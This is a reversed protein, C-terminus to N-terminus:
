EDNKNLEEKVQSMVNDDSLLFDIIKRKSDRMYKQFSAQKIKKKGPNPELRAQAEALSHCEYLLGFVEKHASSLIRANTIVIEDIPDYDYKNKKSVKEYNGITVGAAM